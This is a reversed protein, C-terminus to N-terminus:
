VSQKLSNKPVLLERLSAAAGVSVVRSAPDVAFATIASDVLLLLEATSLTLSYWYSSGHDEGELSFQAQHTGPDWKPGKWRNLKTLDGRAITTTGKNRIAGTRTIKM